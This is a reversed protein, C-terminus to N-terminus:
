LIFRGGAQNILALEKQTEFISGMDDSIPLVNCASLYGLETDANMMVPSNPVFDIDNLLRYFDDAHKHQNYSENVAVANAVRSSMDSWNREEPTLYRGKLLKKAGKTLKTLIVM